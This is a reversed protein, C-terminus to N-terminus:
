SEESGWDAENSCELQSVDVSLMAFDRIHCHGMDPLLHDMLVADHYPIQVTGEVIDIHFCELKALTMLAQLMRAGIVQLGSNWLLSSGEEDGITM